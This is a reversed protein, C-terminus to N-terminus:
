AAGRTEHLPMTTETPHARRRSTGGRARATTHCPDATPASPPRFPGGGLDACTRLNFKPFALSRPTDRRLDRRAGPTLAWAYRHNGHHRLPRTLRALEARMWAALDEGASPERAGKAVLQAVAYRWGRERGRIKSAARNSFETADDFLRLTKPSARGTYIANLSQYVIGVHGPFVVRGSAATRPEPDSLSVVGAWGERRLEEFCRAVFWSEANSPVVDLLVLRGLELAEERGWPRLAADVMPCSFVAAGVLAGLDYLGFRRRAAPYSRSYHHEEVFARPAVDTAIPSVDYRTPDFAEGARRWASCGRWWRECVSTIM